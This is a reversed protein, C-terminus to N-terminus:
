RRDLITESDAEINEAPEEAPIETAEGPRPAPPDVGPFLTREAPFFIVIDTGKGLESSISLEGGHLEVLTKVLPLGLGTGAHSRSLSSDLQVFPLMAKEVEEATMGIGQDSIRLAFRQTEDIWARLTLIGGPKSFKIANSLLNFLIQKLTREDLWVPPMRDGVAVALTLEAKDARQRLVRLVDEMTRAVDVRSPRLVFQGAEIKSIDLVDNILSMLHTACDLMDDVFERYEESGLPGFAQRLDGVMVGDEQYIDLMLARIGGFAQRKMMEAFGIISNLPTRLEHTMNSLFDTKARNAQEAAARALRAEEEAQRQEEQMRAREALNDRFDRLVRAVTGFEDHRIAPLEAELDGATIAAISDVLEKLPTTISRLVLITSVLWFLSALLVFALSISVAVESNVQAGENVRLALSELRSVLRTLRRDVAELHVKAKEMRSNGLVRQDAVYADVAAMALPWFKELDGRIAAVTSKNGRELQDLDAVFTLRAKEMEQASRTLHSAALDAMWFKLDGFDRSASHAYRLVSVLGVAEQLFKADDALKARLFLHMAVPASLLVTSLIVLRTVISLRSLLM